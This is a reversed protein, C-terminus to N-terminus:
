WPAHSSWVPLGFLRDDGADAHCGACSKIVGAAHVKSGDPSLVAYIWGNDTPPSDPGRAPGIHHMLFLDAQDGRTYAHGDRTYVHERPGPTFPAHDEVVGPAPRAHWGEKVLTQGLRPMGPHPASPNSRREFTRDTFSRYDAADRAFLYYLKFAHGGADAESARVGPTPPGSCREPAWQLDDSVRTWTKYERAAELLSERLHVPADTTTPPRGAFQCAALGFAVAGTISLVLGSKRLM